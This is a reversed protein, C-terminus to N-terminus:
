NFNFGESRYRTQYLALMQSYYKEDKVVSEEVEAEARKTEQLYSKNLNRDALQEILMLRRRFSDKEFEIESLFRQFLKMFESILKRFRADAASIKEGYFEEAIKERTLDEKNRKIVNYLKIFRQETNFFPSSIFMGFRKFETITLVRTIETVEM